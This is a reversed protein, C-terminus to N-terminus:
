DAEEERGKLIEEVREKLDIKKIKGVGTMPFESISEVYRPIKYKALGKKCFEIIEDESCVQGEKPKIFAMGVEGRVAHPVGIVACQAIKPYRYLYDEIESPLVNEGSTIYMEKVRGTIKLYGDETFVAVDGSHFRGEKDIAKKTEEPDKYYGMMVSPGSICIEGDQGPPVVEGTGPKVLEIIVGPLPKGVTTTIKEFSDGIVTQSVPCSCETMGYIPTIEKIGMKNIIDEMTQLSSPAGGILGTRLSSIDYKHFDPEEMMKIFVTPVGHLVTCKYQEILELARKANFYDDMVMCAGHSIMGFVGDMSGFCHSFPLFTVLRDQETIHNGQTISIPNKLFNHNLMVGKALGTSGSTYQINALDETEVSAEASALKEDLDRGSGKEMVEYYNFSGPYSKESVYIVNKLLPLDESKIEGPQFAEIGPIIGGIMESYNLDAYEDHIILSMSDSHDLVYLLEESTYRNNIPIVVGGIKLIAFKAIVWEPCTVLCIGVKDGKNIGLTLLGKAFNNVRGLLDLYTITEGKYIIAANNPFKNVVMNFMEGTTRYMEIKRRIM